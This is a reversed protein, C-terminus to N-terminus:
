TLTQRLAHRLAIHLLLPLLDLVDVARDSRIHIGRSGTISAIAAHKLTLVQAGTTQFVVSAPFGHRGADATFAYSAPLTAGADTSTFQV